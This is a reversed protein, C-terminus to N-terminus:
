TEFNVHRSSGTAMHGQLNKKLKQMLLALELDLPSSVDKPAGLVSKMNRPTLHRGDAIIGNLMRKGLAASAIKMHDIKM